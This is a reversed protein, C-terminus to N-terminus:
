KAAPAAAPAAGGKGELRKREEEARKQLEAALKKQQDELVKPDIPPGDFAKGFNNLPLYFTVEANGQNKVIVTAKEAKKMNDITAKKVNVQAFCGNPFCIEFAGTEAPNKDVAFRFGPRLMLGPPLLLRIMKNDDGKPDYVALAMLPQPPDEPKAGPVGFDRTTYCLEKKTAPDAGCIKTWDPQVPALTAAVPGGPAAGQPAAGQPAAGAQPAVGAPPAAPAPTQAQATAGALLFAGAVAIAASRTFHISM